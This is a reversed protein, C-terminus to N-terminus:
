VNLYNPLSVVRQSNPVLETHSRAPAATKADPMIELTDLAKFALEPTCRRIEGQYENYSAISNAKGM